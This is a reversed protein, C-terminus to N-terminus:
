AVALYWFLMGLIIDRVSGPERSHVESAVLECGDGDTEAREEAAASGYAGGDWSSYNDQRPLSQVSTVTSLLELALVLCLWEEADGKDSGEAEFELSQNIFRQLHTWISGRMDGM